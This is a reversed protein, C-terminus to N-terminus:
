TNGRQLFRLGSMIDNLKLWFEELNHLWWRNKAHASRPYKSIFTHNRKCLRSSIEFNEYIEITMHVSTRHQVGETIHHEHQNLTMWPPRVSHVGRRNVRCQRTELNVIEFEMKAGNGFLDIWTWESVNSKLFFTKQLRKQYVTTKWRFLPIEFHGLFM